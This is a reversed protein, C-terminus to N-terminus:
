NHYDVIEVVTVDVANLDKLPSPEVLIRWNGSLEGSWNGALEGTLVHWSGGPDDQALNGLTPAAELARIRLRLKKEIDQRKRRMERENRCLKELKKEKYRVEM